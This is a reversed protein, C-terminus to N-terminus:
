NMKDMKMGQMKMGKMPKNMKMGKMSPKKKMGKMNMGKM